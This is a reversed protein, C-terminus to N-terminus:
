HDIKSLSEINWARCFRKNNEFRDLQFTLGFVYRDTDYKPSHPSYRKPHKLGATASVISCGIPWAGGGFFAVRVVIASTFISCFRFVEQVGCFDFSLCFGLILNHTDVRICFPWHQTAQLFSLWIEWIKMRDDFKSSFSRHHWSMYKIIILVWVRTVTMYVVFVYTHVRTRIHIHAHARVCICVIM